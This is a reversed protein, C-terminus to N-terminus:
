RQDREFIIAGREALSDILEHSVRDAIEVSEDESLDQNADCVEARLANYAGISMIVAKKGHSEVIVEDGQESVYALLSGLRNKPENAAVAKPM